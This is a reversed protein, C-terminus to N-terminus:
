KQRKKYLIVLLLILFVILLVLLLPNLLLIGEEPNTTFHRNIIISKEKTSETNTQEGTAKTSESYESPNSELIEPNSNILPKGDKDLRIPKWDNDHLHYEGKELGWDSCNKWCKHGGRSDTGGPHSSATLPYIILIFFLLIKIADAPRITVKTNKSM